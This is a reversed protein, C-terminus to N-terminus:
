AECQQGARATRSTCRLWERGRTGTANRCVSVFQGFGLLPRRTRTAFSLDEKCAWGVPSIRSEGMIMMRTGVSRFASVADTEHLDTRDLDSAPDDECASRLNSNGPIPAPHGDNLGKTQTAAM